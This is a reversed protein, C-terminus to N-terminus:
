EPIEHMSRWGWIQMFSDAVDDINKKPINSILDMRDHKNLWYLMNAKTHNKNATYSRSYKSAFANYKLEDSFYITNKLSPGVIEPSYESYHYIIQNSVCRSKDNSSMQYEVLVKDIPTKIKEDLMTLCKKLQIARDVTNVSTPVVDFVDMM